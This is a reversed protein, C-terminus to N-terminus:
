VSVEGGSLVGGFYAMGPFHNVEEELIIVVLTQPNRNAELVQRPVGEEGGWQVDTMNGGVSISRGVHVRGESGFIVRINLMVGKGVVSTTGSKNARKPYCGRM